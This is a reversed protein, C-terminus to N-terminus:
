WQAATVNQQVFTEECLFARPTNCDKPYLTTRNNIVLCQDALYLNPNSMGVVLWNQTLSSRYWMDKSGTKSYSVYIDDTTVDAVFLALNKYVKVSIKIQSTLAKNNTISL